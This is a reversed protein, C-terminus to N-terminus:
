APREKKARVVVVQGNDYEIKLARGLSPRETMCTWFAELWSQGTVPFEVAFGDPWVQWVRVPTM